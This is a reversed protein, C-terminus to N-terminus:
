EIGGEAGSWEESTPQSSFLRTASVENVNDKYNTTSDDMWGDGDQLWSGWEGEHLHYYSYLVMCPRGYENTCMCEWNGGRDTSGLVSNELQMDDEFNDHLSYM